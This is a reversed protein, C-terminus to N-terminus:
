FGALREELGRSILNDYAFAPPVLGMETLLKGMRLMIVTFRLGALLVFYDLTEASRGTRETWRRATQEATPFGPLRHAGSGTTLVEDAFLWWGLDLLPDGIATMEWDLVAAVEFDRYIINGLRADGWSLAPGAAPNAPRTARLRELAARALGHPTGAEAWHLFGEYHDLRAGLPDDTAPFTGPPLDLEDLDLRHIEAMADIGNWWAREQDGASARHLWGELAYAPADTAVEGRVREMIWFPQGFWAPDEELWLIRAMPVNSREALAQMVNFQRTFTAEPFVQYGSPAVRAVLEQTEVRGDRTWRADFMITENSWGTASPITVGDVTVDTIGPVTALWSSLTLATEAADRELAGM